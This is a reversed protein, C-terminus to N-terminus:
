LWSAPALRGSLLESCSQKNVGGEEELREERGNEEIGELICRPKRQILLKLLRFAMSQM